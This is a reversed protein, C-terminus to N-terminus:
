FRFSFGVYPFIKFAKTTNANFDGLSQLGWVWSSKQRAATRIAISLSGFNVAPFSFVEGVFSSKNSLQASFAFGVFLSSIDHLNYTVPTRGGRRRGGGQMTYFETQGYGGFFTYNLKTDGYTIKATGGIGYSSKPSLYFLSGAVGEVGIYTKHAVEFNGKIHFGSPAGIILSSIGMSFNRSLAYNINYFAFYSSNGFFKGKELLFANGTTVYYNQAIGPTHIHMGGGITDHTTHGGIFDISAVYHKPIVVLVGASSKLYMLSDTQKDIFGKYSSGDRMQVECLKGKASPKFVSDSQSFLRQCQMLNLFLIFALIRHM